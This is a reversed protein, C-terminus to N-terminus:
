LQVHLSTPSDPPPRLSGSGPQLCLTCGDLRSFDVALLGFLIFLLMAAVWECIASVSRMSWYHLVVVPALTLPALGCPPAPALPSGAGSM